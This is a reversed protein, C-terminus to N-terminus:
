TKNLLYIWFLKENNKNTEDRAIRFRCTRWNHGVYEGCWSCKKAIGGPSDIVDTTVEEEDSENEDGTQFFILIYTFNCM